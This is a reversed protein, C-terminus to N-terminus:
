VLLPVVIQSQYTPSSPHGILDWGELGAGSCLLGDHNQVALVIYIM